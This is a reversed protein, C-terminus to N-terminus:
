TWVPYGSRSTGTPRRGENRWAVCRRCGTAKDKCSACGLQPLQSDEDQADPADNTDAPIAGSCPKRQKAGRAKSTAIFNSLEPWGRKVMGELYERKANQPVSESILKLFKLHHAVDILQM